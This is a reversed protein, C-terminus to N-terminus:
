DCDAWPFGVSALLQLFSCAGGDDSRTCLSLAFLFLDPKHYMQATLCVERSLVALEVNLNLLLIM